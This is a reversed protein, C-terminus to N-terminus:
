NPTRNVRILQGKVTDFSALVQNIRQAMRERIPDDRCIIIGAHATKKRHLKIFDIRNLTIVARNERTAFALVEEDPIKLNSQGAEQVTLINHGWNRLLIVVQKPFHEDAYLLAM